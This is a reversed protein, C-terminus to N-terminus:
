AMSELQKSVGKDQCVMNRPYTSIMDNAKNNYAGLLGRYTNYVLKKVNPDNKDIKGNEDVLPVVTTTDFVPQPSCKSDVSNLKKRRSELFEPTPPVFAFERKDSSTKACSTAMTKNNAINLSTSTAAKKPLTGNTPFKPPVPINGNSTTKILAGNTITLNEPMKPPVPVFGNQSSQEPVRINAGNSVSKQHQQPPTSGNSFNTESLKRSIAQVSFNAHEEPRVQPKIGCNVAPQKTTIGNSFSNASRNNNLVFVKSVPVYKPEDPKVSVCNNTKMVPNQKATTSESENQSTGNVQIFIESRVTGNKPTVLAPRVPSFKKSKYNELFDKYSGYSAKNISHTSKLSSTSVESNLSSNSTNNSKCQTLKFTGNSFGSDTSAVSDVEDRRNSYNDLFETYDKYKTKTTVTGSNSISKSNEFNRM